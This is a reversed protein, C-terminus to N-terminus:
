RGAGSDRKGDYIGTIALPGKTDMHITHALQDNETGQLNKRSMQKAKAERCIACDFPLDQMEKITMHPIGDVKQYAIMHMLDRKNMHSYRVHLEKLLAEKRKVGFQTM